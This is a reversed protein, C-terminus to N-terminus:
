VQFFLFIIAEPVLLDCVFAQYWTKHILHWYLLQNIVQLNLKPLKNRIWGGSYKCTIWSKGTGQYTQVFCCFFIKRPPVFCACLFICRNIKKEVTLLCLWPGWTSVMPLQNWLHWFYIQKGADRWARFLAFVMPTLVPFICCFTIVVGM